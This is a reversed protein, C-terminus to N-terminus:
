VSVDGKGGGPLLAAFEQVVRPLLLLQHGEQGLAQPGLLSGPVVPSMKVSGKIHRAQTAPAAEACLSGAELAGMWPNELREAFPHPSALAGRISAPNLGERDRCSWLM